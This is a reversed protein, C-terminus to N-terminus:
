YDCQQEYGEDVCDAYNEDANDYQAEAYETEIAAGNVRALQRAAEALNTAVDMRSGGKAMTVALQINNDEVVAGTTRNNINRSSISSNNIVDVGTQNNLNNSNNVDVDEPPLTAGKNSNSNSSGNHVINNTRNSNSTALFSKNRLSRRMAGM